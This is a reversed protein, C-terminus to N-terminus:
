IKPNEDKYACDACMAARKDGAFMAECRICKCLYDGPAWWGRMPRDDQKIDKPFWTPKDSMNM